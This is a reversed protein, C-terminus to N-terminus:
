RTGLQENKKESLSNAGKKDAATEHGSGRSGSRGKAM